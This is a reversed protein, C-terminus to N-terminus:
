KELEDDDGYADRIAELYALAAAVPDESRWVGGLVAVGAAGAEAAAAVRDATVGGIALVPVATRAACDALRELGAPTRDVHSASRYITGMVVFDAGDGAAQVAELTGHASYGIPARGLLARVDAIPLGAAGLQVGNARVAMAIDVRDNILLWSGSRLAAVALTGALAHLAAAPTAHGRLHLALRQGCAALVDAARGVFDAEALVADDTVVHLQPLRM